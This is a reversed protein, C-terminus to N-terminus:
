TVLSWGPLVSQATVNLIDSSIDVTVELTETEVGDDIPQLAEGQEDVIKSDGFWNKFEPLASRGFQQWPVM